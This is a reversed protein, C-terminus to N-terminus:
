KKKPYMPHRSLSHYYITQKNTQENTLKNERTSNSIKSTILLPTRATRVTAAPSTTESKHSRFQIWDKKKPPFNTLKPILNPDQSFILLHVRANKGAEIGLVRTQQQGPIKSLTRNQRKFQGNSPNLAQFKEEKKKRSYYEAKLHKAPSNPRSEERPWDWQSIGNM